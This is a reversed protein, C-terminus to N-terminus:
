PRGTRATFVVFLYFLLLIDAVFRRTEDDGDDRPRRTDIKPRRSWCPPRATYPVRAVVVAFFNEAVLFRRRRRPPGEDDYCAFATSPSRARNTVRESRLVTGARGREVSRSRARRRRRRCCRYRSTVAPSPRSLAPWTKAGLSGGGGAM